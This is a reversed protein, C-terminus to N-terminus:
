SYPFNRINGEKSSFFTIQVDISLERLLGLIKFTTKLKGFCWFSWSSDLYAIQSAADAILAQSDPAQIM